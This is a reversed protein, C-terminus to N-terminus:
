ALPPRVGGASGRTSSDGTRVRVLREISDVVQEVSLGDTDVVVADPARVSQRADTRDRELIDALERAIQEPTAQGRQEVRRRAREEPSAVLYVKVVADPFVTTGVDRGAVVAWEGSVARRQPELLATRVFQQRAVRSVIRDVVPLHLESTVDRGGVLVRATRARQGPLPEAVVHFADVLAALREGDDPSIGRQLALWALARYFLGTDLVLAGLREALRRAVTSKGSAAPGDVAIVRTGNM